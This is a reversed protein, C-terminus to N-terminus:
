GAFVGEALKMAEKMIRDRTLIFHVKADKITQEPLEKSDKLYDSVLDCDRADGLLDELEGVQTRYYTDQSSFADMLEMHYTHDKVRKRFEHLHVQSKTIAYQRYAAVMIERCTEMGKKLHRVAFPSLVTRDFTNGLAELEEIVSDEIEADISGLNSVTDMNQEQFPLLLLDIVEKDRYPSLEFAIERLRTNYAKQAPKFKKKRLLRLLARLRKLCKRASHLGEPEPEPYVRLNTIAFQIQEAFVARLQEELPKGPEFRYSM